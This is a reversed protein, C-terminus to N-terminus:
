KSFIPNSSSRPEVKFKKESSGRIEAYLGQGKKDVFRVIAKWGLKKGFGRDEEDTTFPVCFSSLLSPM